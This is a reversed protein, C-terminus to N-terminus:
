YQYESDGADKQRQKEELILRSLYNRREKDTATKFLRRYRERCRDLSPERLGARRQQIHFHIRHLQHHRGRGEHRRLGHDPHPDVGSYCHQLALPAVDPFHNHLINGLGPLESKSTAKHCQLSRM